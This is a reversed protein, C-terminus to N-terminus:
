PAPDLSLVLVRHRDHTEVVQWGAKEYLAPIDTYVFLETHGKAVAEDSAARILGTAIGAGRHAPGVIVANIWLGPTESGPKPYFTFTLGALLSDGNVALLPAPLDAVTAVYPRDAEGWEAELWHQLTELFTPATDAHVITYM